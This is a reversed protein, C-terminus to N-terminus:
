INTVFSSLPNPDSYWGEVFHFTSALHPGMSTLDSSGYSFTMNVTIEPISTIMDDIHHWGSLRVGLAEKSASHIRQERFDTQLSLSAM